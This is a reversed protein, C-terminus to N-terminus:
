GGRQIGEATAWLHLRRADSIGLSPSDVAAIPFIGVTLLDLEDVGLSKADSHYTEM